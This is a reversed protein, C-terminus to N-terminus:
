FYAASLSANLEPLRRALRLALLWVPGGGTSGAASPATPSPLLLSPHGTLCSTSGTNIRVLFVSWATSIGANPITTRTSDMLPERTCSPMVAAPM